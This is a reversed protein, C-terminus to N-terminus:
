IEGTAILLLNLVHNYDEHKVPSGTQADLRLEFCNEFTLAQITGVREVKLGVEHSDDITVVGEPGLEHLLDAILIGTAQDNNASITAVQRLREWDGAVPVAM